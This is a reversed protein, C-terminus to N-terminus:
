KNLILFIIISLGINVTILVTVILKIWTNAPLLYMIVYKITSVTVVSLVM